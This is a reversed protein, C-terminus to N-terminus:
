NEIFIKESKIIKDGQKIVLTYVGSTTKGITFSNRHKGSQYLKENSLTKVANGNMDALTISLKSEEKVAFEVNVQDSAPNPYAKFDSLVAQQFCGNSITNFNIQQTLVFTNNLGGQQLHITAKATVYNTFPLDACQCIYGSVLWTPHAINTRLDCRYGCADTYCPNLPTYIHFNGSTIEWKVYGQIGNASMWSNLTTIDGGDCVVNLKVRNWVCGYCTPDWGTTTSMTGDVVIKLPCPLTLVPPCYVVNVTKCMCCNPQGNVSKVLCIQFTGLQSAIVTVTSQDRPGVIQANGIVSWGYIAGPIATTSFTYNRNICVTLNEGCNTISQLSASKEESPPLDGNLCIDCTVQAFATTISFVFFLLFSLFQKKM